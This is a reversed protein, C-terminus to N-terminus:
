VIDKKKAEFEEKNIEGKAYRKKLIDLATEPENKSRGQEVAWQVFLIIGVIVVVWLIIMFLGGGYWNGDMIGPGMM